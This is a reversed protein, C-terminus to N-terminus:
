TEENSNSWREFSYRRRPVKQAPVQSGLDSHGFARNTGLDQFSDEVITYILIGKIIRLFLLWCGGLANEFLKVLVRVIGLLESIAKCENDNFM